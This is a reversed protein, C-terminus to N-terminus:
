GRPQSPEPFTRPLNEACRSEVHFAVTRWAKVHTTRKAVARLSGAPLLLSDAALTALPQYWPAGTWYPTVVVASAAPEAELKEIVDGLCGV